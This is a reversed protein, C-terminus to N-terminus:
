EFEVSKIIIFVIIIIIVGGFMLLTILCWLTKDGVVEVLVMNRWSDQYYGHGVHVDYVNHHNISCCFCWLMVTYREVYWFLSLVMFFSLLLQVDCFIVDMKVNAYPWKECWSCSILANKLHWLIIIILRTM